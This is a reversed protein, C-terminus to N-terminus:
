LRGHFQIAFNQFTNPICARLDDMRLARYCVVLVFRDAHISFMVLYSSSEIGFYEQIGIALGAVNEIVSKCLRSYNLFGLLLLWWFFNRITQEPIFISVGLPHIAWRFKSSKGMLVDSRCNRSVGSIIGFRIDTLFSTSYKLLNLSIFGVETLLTRTLCFYTGPAQFWNFYLAKRLVM